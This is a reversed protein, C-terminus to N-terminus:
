NIKYQIRIVSEIYFILLSTLSRLKNKLEIWLDTLELIIKPAMTKPGLVWFIKKFSKQGLRLLSNLNFFKVIHNGFKIIVM